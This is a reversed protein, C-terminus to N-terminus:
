KKFSKGFIKLAEKLGKDLAKFYLEKAKIGIDANVEFVYSPCYDPITFEDVFVQWCMDDFQLEVHINHEMLLWDKLDSKTPAPLYYYYDPKQETIYPACNDALYWSNEANLKIGLKILLQAVQLSVLKNEM